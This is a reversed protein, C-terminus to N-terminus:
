NRLCDALIQRNKGAREQLQSVEEQLMIQYPLFNEQINALIPTLRQNPEPAQVAIRLQSGIAKIKPDYALGVPVTGSIAAFILAHLRMTLAVKTQSIFNMAALWNKPRFLEMSPVAQQIQKGIYLDDPSLPVFYVPWDREEIWYKIIESWQASHQQWLPYPRLNLSIGPLYNKTAFSAKALNFVPDSAIELDARTVGWEQLLQASFPDRVSVKTVQNVIRKIWRQYPVFGVPGIGQAYMVVPIKFSLALKIIVLYYPVTRWSTSDQLLSGGGSVLLKIQPMLRVIQALNYRYIAQVQHESTTYAPDGSLVVIESRQVGLLELEQCLVALIGEDGSNQYGYYGSVLIM